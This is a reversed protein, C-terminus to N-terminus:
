PVNPLAPHINECWYHLGDEITDRLYRFVRKVAIYHIHAPKTNYQSLKIICYLIDPRCTIAAFLLEGIAQRYAFGMNKQLAVQAIDDTPGTASELESLYKKEHNMPSAIPNTFKNKGVM